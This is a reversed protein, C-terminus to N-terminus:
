LGPEHSARDESQGGGGERRRGEGKEGLGGPRFGSRRRKPDREAIDVFDDLDIRDRELLDTVDFRIRLRM